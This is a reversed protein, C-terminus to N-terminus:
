WTASAALCRSMYTRWPTKQGRGGGSTAMELRDLPYNVTSDVELTHSGHLRKYMEQAVRALDPTKSEQQGLSAVM